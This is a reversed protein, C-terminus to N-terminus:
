NRSTFYRLLSCIVPQLLMCLYCRRNTVTLSLKGIYALSWPWGQYLVKGWNQEFMVKCMAKEPGSRTNNRESANGTLFDYQEESLLSLKRPLCDGAAWWMVVRTIITRASCRLGFPPCAGWGGTSTEWSRSTVGHFYDLLWFHSREERRRQEGGRRGRRKERGGEEVGDKEGGRSGGEKEREGERLCCSSPPFRVFQRSPQGSYQSRIGTPLANWGRPM